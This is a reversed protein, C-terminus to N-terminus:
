SIMLWRISSLCCCFMLLWLVIIYVCGSIDGDDSDADDAEDTLLGVVSPKPLQIWTRRMRM